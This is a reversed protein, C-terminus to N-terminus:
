FDLQGFVKKVEEELQFFEGPSIRRPRVMTVKGKDGNVSYRFVQGTQLKPSPFYERSLEGLIEREDRGWLSVYVRKDSVRRVKGTYNFKM